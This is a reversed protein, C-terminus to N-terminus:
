MKESINQTIYQHSVTLYHSSLSECFALDLTRISKSDLQLLCKGTFTDNESISLYELGQNERFLKSLETDCLKGTMYRATFSKIDKCKDALIGISKSSVDLYGTDINKINPCFKAVLDLPKPERNAHLVSFDISKLFRGCQNLLKELIDTSIVEVTIGWCEEDFKM